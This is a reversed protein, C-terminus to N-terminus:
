YRQIREFEHVICFTGELHWHVLVWILEIHRKRFDPASYTQLDAIAAHM